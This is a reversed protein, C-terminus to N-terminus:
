TKLSQLWDTFLFVLSFYHMTSPRLAPWLATVYLPTTKVLKVVIYHGGSALPFVNPDLVTNYKSINPYINLHCHAFYGDINPPSRMGRNNRLVLRFTRLICYAM